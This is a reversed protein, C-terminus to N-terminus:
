LYSRVNRTVIRLGPNSYLVITHPKHWPYTLCAFGFSLFNVIDLRILDGTAAISLWLSLNVASSTSILFSMRLFGDEKKYGHGRAM